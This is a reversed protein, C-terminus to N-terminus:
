LEMTGILSRLEPVLEAEFWKHKNFWYQNRPSPHVLPLFGMPLYERWSKVTEEVTPKRRSALYYSQAYGGILLTLDVAPLFKSLKEHWLPACERRPPKDGGSGKGPYCFGMPIIAIKLSNYFQERTVGLWARLRDGSRDNWPIGTEHVKRGPAQGIIQLRASAHAHLVPRAGCPLEEACHNCNRIKKLLQPLTM